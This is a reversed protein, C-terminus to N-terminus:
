LDHLKKFSVKYKLFQSINNSLLNSKKFVNKKSILEQIAAIPDSYEDDYNLMRGINIKSSYKFFSQNAYITYFFWYDYDAYKRIKNLIITIFKIKCLIENKGQDNSKVKKYLERSKHKALNSRKNSEICKNIILFM